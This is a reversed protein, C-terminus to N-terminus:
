PDHPTGGTDAKSDPARLAEQVADETSLRHGSAKDAAFTDPNARVRLANLALEYCPANVTTHLGLRERRSETAGLLRAARSADARLVAVALLGELGYAVGEDHGLRTSRQLGDRFRESAQELDGQKLATWGLHNLAVASSLDDHLDQAIARSAEFDRGAKVVDGRALAMRGSPILAVAEGWRDDASRFDELGETFASMAGELDPPNSGLRALGLSISALGAGSREGQQRFLRVSEELGPVVHADVRQWFSVTHTFYLATALTLPPLPEPDVLVMEMWSRVEGLHGRVWWLVYLNWAFTAASAFDRQSLDFNIAARVNDYAFELRELWAAQGSGRLGLRASAALAHYYQAHRAELAGRQGSASLLELAFERVAGLWSFSLESERAEQRLLSSDVLATLLNLVDLGDEACVGEAAELTFTCTFVGLRTFLQQEAEALLEVSWAITDRLTQQRKPLDRAGGRLLNLGQGLRSLLAAPPLVRVQAAALELALPVGDLVLCIRAVDSAIDETLEFDPKVAQARETFLQVSSLAQLDELDPLRDLNPLALPKVDFRHEGSLQLPSRSTVLVDLGPAHTLWTNLLPAADLVQEFNDLVLLLQQGALAGQVASQVEERGLDRLGLARAVALPVQAVDSISDLSVFRVSDPRKEHWAAAVALALRTKGIGGPGILTVLRVDTRELLTLAAEVEAERGILRTLPTPLTVVEVQTDQVSPRPTQSFEYRESLLLALDNALLERLEAATHFAKYSTADDSRVRDLLRDLRDERKPSPTKVYILKPRQGSLDYEDELGSVRESPAVWGYRQWYLGVFVQSQELYARYLDRPPHPRAGLEFMVPTLHLGEIAERVARREESLEQLTSSVFVRLRQDPTRILAAPRSIHCSDATAV